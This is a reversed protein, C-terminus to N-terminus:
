LKLGDLPDDSIKKRDQILKPSPASGSEKKTEKDKGTSAPRSSSVAHRSARADDLQKQIASREADSKAEALQKKYSSELLEFKREQEATRLNGREIAERKEIEQAALQKQHDATIKYIVGGAVVLVAVVIGAILGMPASKAAKAATKVQADLRMKEQQLQTDAEIRARRDSEELRLREERERAQKEEEIRALRAEEDRRVRESEDKAKREAEDKSRRDAEVRAAAETREKNVRDEEQKRLEKLSKLVSNDRSDLM